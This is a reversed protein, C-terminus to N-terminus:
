VPFQFWMSFACRFVLQFLHQQLVVLKLESSTKTKGRRERERPKVPASVPIYLLFLVCVFVCSM